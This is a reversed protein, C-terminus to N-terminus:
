EPDGTGVIERKERHSWHYYAFGTASVLPNVPYHSANEFRRCHMGKEHGSTM